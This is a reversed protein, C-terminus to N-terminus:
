GHSKPEWGCDLPERKGQVILGHQVMLDHYRAERWDANRKEAYQEDLAQKWLEFPSPTESM